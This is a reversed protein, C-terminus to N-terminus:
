PLIRGSGTATRTLSELYLAVSDQDSPGIVQTALGRIQETANAVAIAVAALRFMEADNDSDGFVTLSEPSSGERQLLLRIGEAKTARRDSITLWVDDTGSYRNPFVYLQLQGDCQEELAARLEELRQPQHSIVTFSLVQEGLARRLEPLHKLRPDGVARRDGLYWEMGANTARSYYLSDQGGSTTCILPAHGAAQVLEFVQRSIEIPLANVMLHRGTGLDSLLAGNLAIVPLGLDLGKLREGISFPSRASAITFSLGAAILRNLTARSYESLTADPRLLTGDLDSVYLSKLPHHWFRNQEQSM